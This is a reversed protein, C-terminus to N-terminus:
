EGQRMVIDKILLDTAQAHRGQNLGAAAVRDACM